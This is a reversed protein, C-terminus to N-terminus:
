MQWVVKQGIFNNDKLIAQATVLVHARKAYALQMLSFLVIGLAKNTVSRYLM